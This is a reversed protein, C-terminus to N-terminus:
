LRKQYTTGHPLQGCDLLKKGRHNLEEKYIYIKVNHGRGGDRQVVDSRMNIFSAVEKDYVERIIKYVEIM